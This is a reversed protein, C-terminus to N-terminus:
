PLEVPQSAAPPPAPVLGRARLFEMVRKRRKLFIQTRTRPNHLRPSPLTAALEAAQELTLSSASVGFYLRAAAEVGFVGVGLEATNLYITLIRRKDLNRELGWTLFIEHWKRLWSRRPSLFLNKATQQSITSAGVALRGRQLNYDVAEGIAQWDFGGHQWFQADESAIVAVEVTDAIERLAVPHWRLPPNTKSPDARYADILRTAPVSGRSLEEWDPWLWWVYLADLVVCAGLLAAIPWCVRRGYRRAWAPLRAM